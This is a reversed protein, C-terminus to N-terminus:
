TAAFSCPVERQDDAALEVEDFADAQDGQCRVASGIALERPQDAQGAACGWPRTCAVSRSRMKWRLRQRSIQSGRAVVVAAAGIAPLQCAQAAPPHPDAHVVQEAVVLDAAVPGQLCESVAEVQGQDGAAVHLHV